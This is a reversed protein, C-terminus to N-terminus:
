RLFEPRALLKGNEGFFATPRYRRHLFGLLLSKASRLMTGWPTPHAGNVHRAPGLLAEDDSDLVCSMVGVFPLWAYRSTNALPTM